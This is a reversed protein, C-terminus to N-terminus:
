PSQRLQKIRQLVEVDAQDQLRGTQKSRILTDIDVYPITVGELETHQLGPLTDAYRVSWALTLLDVHPNDGISTIPKTVVLDPRLTSALGFPLHGLARLARSTNELTAEILVDVDKTARVHGHLQAAYGGVIAYRVHEANLLACVTALRSAPATM